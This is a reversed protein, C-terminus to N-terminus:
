KKLPFSYFCDNEAEKLEEKLSNVLREDNKNAFKLGHKRMCNLGLGIADRYDYTCINARSMTMFIFQGKKRSLEDARFSECEEVTDGWSVMVNGFSITFEM